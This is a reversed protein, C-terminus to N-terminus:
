STGRYKCLYRKVGWRAWLSRWRYTWSGIAGAAFQRDLETAKRSLRQLEALQQLAAVKEAFEEISVRDAAITGKPPDIVNKEAIQGVVHWPGVVDPARTGQAGGCSWCESDGCTCPM